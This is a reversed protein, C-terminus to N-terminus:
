RVHALYQLERLQEPSQASSPLSLYYSPVDGSRGTLLRALLAYRAVSPLPQARVMEDLMTIGHPDGDAADVLAYLTPHATGPLQALAERAEPVRGQRALIEVATVKLRDRTSAPAAAAA